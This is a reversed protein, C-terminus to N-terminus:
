WGKLFQMSDGFMTHVPTAKASASDVVFYEFTPLAGDGNFQDFKPVERAAIVLAMGNGLSIMRPYDGPAYALSPVQVPPQTPPQTRLAIAGIASALVIAIAIPMLSARPPSSAVNADICAVRSPLLGLDRAKSEASATDTAEVMVCRETATTADAGHVLYHM